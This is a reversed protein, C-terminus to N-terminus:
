APKGRGRGVGAIGSCGGGTGATVLRGAAAVVSHAVGAARLCLAGLEEVSGAAVGQGLGYGLSAVEQRLHM